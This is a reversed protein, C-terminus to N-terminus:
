SRSEEALDLEVTPRERVSRTFADPAAEWSGPSRFVVQVERGLLRSAEDVKEIVADRDPEGIVVLDVDGPPPGPEGHYRAAWSGVILASEIGPEGTLAEELLPKPGYAVLLLDTLPRVLPSGADARLLRTRGVRRDALVGAEVLRQVDAHLNGPDAGIERALEAISAERTPQLLLAALLRAQTESRLVPLLSSVRRPSSCL